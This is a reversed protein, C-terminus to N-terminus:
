SANDEEPWINGAVMAAPLYALREPHYRGLSKAGRAKGSAIAEGLQLIAEMIQQPRPPDGPVFIDVPLLGDIGPLVNYSGSYPAGSIAGNGLAMVFRPEAMSEYLGRLVPAMKATVAGGIILLDIQRPSPRMVESGLRAIDYQPGIASFIELTAYDLGLTLPWLSRATCERILKELSTAISM